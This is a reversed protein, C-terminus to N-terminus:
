NLTSLLSDAQSQSAAVDASEAAVRKTRAKDAQWESHAAAAKKLVETKSQLDKMQAAKLDLLFQKLRLLDEEKMNPALQLIRALTEGTLAPIGKALNLVEDLLAAM